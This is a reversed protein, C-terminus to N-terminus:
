SREAPEKAAPSGGSTSATPTTRAADPRAPAAGPRDPDWDRYWRKWIVRHIPIKRPIARWGPIFPTLFLLLTVVAIFSISLIDANQSNGIASVQYPFSYLWLWFQGPWGGTENMLGWQNGQLGQATAQPNLANGDALYLLPKTYDFRFFQGPPNNGQHLLTGDLVGTRALRYQADMITAAPGYLGVPIRPLGGDPPFTAHSLAKTYANAWATRRAASANEWRQIALKVLPQGPQALLPNIVFDRAANVPIVTGPICEFCIGALKQTSGNGGNYPPGYTASESTGDLESLSTSVFDSPQTTAWTQFTVPKPDPSSFLVSLVLVLVTAAGFAIAAEKILDYRYLPGRYRPADRDPHFARAM